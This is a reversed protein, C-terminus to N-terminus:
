EASTEQHFTLLKQQLSRAAALAHLPNEFHAVLAAEGIQTVKGQGDEVLAQLLRTVAAEPQWPLPRLKGQPGGYAFIRVSMAALLAPAAPEAVTPRQDEQSNQTASLSAM